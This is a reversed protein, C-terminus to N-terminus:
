HAFCSSIKLWLKIILGDFKFLFCRIFYILSINLFHIRYHAEHSRLDCDMVLLQVHGISDAFVNM